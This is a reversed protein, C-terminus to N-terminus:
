IKFMILTGSKSYIFTSMDKEEKINKIGNQTPLTSNTIYNSTNKPHKHNM